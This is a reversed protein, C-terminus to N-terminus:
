NSAYKLLGNWFSESKLKSRKVNTFKGDMDVFTTFFRHTEKGLYECEKLVSSSLAAVTKIRSSCILDYSSIDSIIEINYKSLIEKDYNSESLPHKTYVVKNHSTCIAEVESEFDSLQVFRNASFDFKSYDFRCQGIILCTDIPLRKSVKGASLLSTMKLYDAWFQYKKASYEHLKFYEAIRTNNSYLSRLSGFKCFRIPSMFVNIYEIGLDNFILEDCPHMEHMIVLSDEYLDSLYDKQAETYGISRRYWLERTKIKSELSKSPTMYGLNNAGGFDSFVGDGLDIFEDHNVGEIGQVKGGVVRSLPAKLYDIVTPEEWEYREFWPRSSNIINKM